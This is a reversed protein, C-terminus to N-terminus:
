YVCFNRQYLNHGFASLQHLVQRSSQGVLAGPGTFLAILYVSCVIQKEARRLLFLLAFVTAFSNRAAIRMYYWRDCQPTGKAVGSEIDKRGNKEKTEPV